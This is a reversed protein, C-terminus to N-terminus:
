TEKAERYLDETLDEPRKQKKQREVNQREISGGGEERERGGGEEGGYRV